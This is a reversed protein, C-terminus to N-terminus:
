FTRVVDCAEMHEHTLNKLGVISCRKRHRKLWGRRAESNFGGPINAVVLDDPSEALVVAPPSGPGDRCAELM